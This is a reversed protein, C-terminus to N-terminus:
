SHTQSIEMDTHTKSIFCKAKLAQDLFKIISPFLYRNKGVMRVRLLLVLHSIGWSVSLTIKRYGSNSKQGAREFDKALCAGSFLDTLNIVNIQNDTM